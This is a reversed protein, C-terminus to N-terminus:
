TAGSESCHVKRSSLLHQKSERASSFYTVRLSTNGSLRDSWTSITSAEVKPLSVNRRMEVLMESINLGLQKGLEVTIAAAQNPYYLIEEFALEVSRLLKSRNKDDTIPDLVQRKLYLYQFLQRHPDISGKVRVTPRRPSNSPLGWVILFKDHDYPMPVMNRNEVYRLIADTYRNQLDLSEQNQSAFWAMYDPPLEGFIGDIYIGSSYYSIAKEMISTVFDNGGQFKWGILYREASLPRSSVPKFISVSDFSMCLLYVLDASIKRMTDFVKLVFNGGQKLTKIGVLAQTLILRSNMFETLMENGTNECTFHCGDAVTLDVGGASRKQVTDVFDMWNTYLDGTGDSGNIINFREMDIRGTNWDTSSNRSESNLTIGFGQARPRRWQLYETFGGPGGAVDCFFFQESSDDVQFSLANQVHGSLKFVADINALKVAARNLFISNGIKEFPNTENRAQLFVESSLAAFLDKKRNIEAYLPVLPSSPDFFIPDRIPLTGYIPDNRLPMGSPAKQPPERLGLTFKVPSQAGMESAGSFFSFKRRCLVESPDM